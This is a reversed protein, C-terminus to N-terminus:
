IVMPDLKGTSSNVDLPTESFQVFFECGKVVSDVKNRIEDTITKHWNKYNKKCYLVITPQKGFLIRYQLIPHDFMADVNDIVNSLLYYTIGSREDLYDLRTSKGIITDIILGSTGCECENCNSVKVKDGIRYRIIPFAKNVLSTLIIDDNEDVDVYVNDSLVHMKGCPCTYAIGNVEKAGYMVTTKADSFFEDIVDRIGNSVLEGFLEVYKVSLPPKLKNTKCYEVLKLGITPAMMFWTPQFEIIENYYERLDDDSLYVASLSLQTKTKIIRSNDFNLSSRGKNTRTHFTCMKDSPMIGYWKMRKKWLYYNSKIWDNFEWYVTVNEGTSGSTREAILDKRNLYKYDYSLIDSVNNILDLRSVCDITKFEELSIEDINKEFIPKLKKKYFDSNNYAYKIMDFLKENM